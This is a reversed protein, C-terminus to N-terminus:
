CKKIKSRIIKKLYDCARKDSACYDSNCKHNYKGKCKCESPKLLNSWIRITTNMCDKTNLCVDNPNWKYKPPESCKKISRIFKEFNNHFFLYSQKSKQFNKVTAFLKISQCNYRGISCLSQGCDYSHKQKPCSKEINNKKFCFDTIGINEIFNVINYLIILILINM